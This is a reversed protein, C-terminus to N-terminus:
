GTTIIFPLFITDPCTVVPSYVFFTSNGAKSYHFEFGCGLKKTNRITLLHEFIALLLRSCKVILVEHKTKM